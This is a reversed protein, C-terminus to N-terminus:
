KGNRTDRQSQQKEPFELMKWPETVAEKCNSVRTLSKLPVAKKEGKTLFSGEEMLQHKTKLSMRDSDAPKKEPFRNLYKM